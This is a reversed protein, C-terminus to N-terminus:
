GVRLRQREELPFQPPDLRAVDQDLRPKPSVLDPVIPPRVRPRRRPIHAHNQGERPAALSALISIPLGADSGPTYISYKAISKLWRLRDPVIGWSELGDRWRQAIDAAFAPVDLGARAADDLRNSGARPRAM